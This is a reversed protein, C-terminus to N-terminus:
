LEGWELKQGLNCPERCRHDPHYYILIYSSKWSALHLNGAKKQARTRVRHIREGASGLGVLVKLRLQPNFSYRRGCQRKQRATNQSIYNNM